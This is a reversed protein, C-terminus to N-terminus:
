ISLIDENQFPISTERQLSFITMPKVLMGAFLEEWKKKNGIM